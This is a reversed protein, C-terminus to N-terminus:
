LRFASFDTSYKTPDKKELEREVEIIEYRGAVLEPPPLTEPLMEPALKKRGSNREEKEKCYTIFNAVEEDTLSHVKKELASQKEEVPPKKELQEKLFVIYDDVESDSLTILKKNKEEKQKQLTERRRKQSGIIALDVLPDRSKYRYGNLNLTVGQTATDDKFDNIMWAFAIDIVVFGDVRKIFDAIKFKSYKSMNIKYDCLDKFYEGRKSEAPFDSALQANLKNM